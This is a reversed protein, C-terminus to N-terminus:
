PSCVHSQHLVEGGKRVVMQANANLCADDAWGTLIKLIAGNEPKLALNRRFRRRTSGAWAPANVWIITCLGHASPGGPTSASAIGAPARM